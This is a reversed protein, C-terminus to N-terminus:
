SKRGKGPGLQLAKQRIQLVKSYGKQLTTKVVKSPFRTVASLLSCCVAVFLPHPAAPDRFCSGGHGAEPCTGVWFLDGLGLFRLSRDVLTEYPPVLVLPVPYCSAHRVALLATASIYLSLSFSIHRYM